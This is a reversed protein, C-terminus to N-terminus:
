SKVNNRTLLAGRADESRKEKKKEKGEKEKRLNFSAAFKNNKNTEKKGGKEEEGGGEEERRKENLFPYSSSTRPLIYFPIHLNIRQTEKRCRKEEKREGKRRELALNPLLLTAKLLPQFRFLRDPSSM